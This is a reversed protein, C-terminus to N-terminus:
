TKPNVLHIIGTRMKKSRWCRWCTASRGRCTPQDDNEPKLRGLAKFPGCPWRRDSPAAELRGAPTVMATPLPGRLQWDAAFELTLATTSPDGRRVPGKPRRQALRLFREPRRARDNGCRDHLRAPEGRSRPARDPAGAHGVSVVVSASGFPAINHEGARGSERAAPRQAAGGGRDAKDAVRSKELRERCM